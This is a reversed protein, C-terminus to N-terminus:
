PGVPTMTSIVGSLFTAHLSSKWSLSSPLLMRMSSRYATFRPGQAPRATVGTRPRPASPGRLNPLHGRRRLGRAPGESTWQGDAWVAGRRRTELAELSGIARRAMVSGGGFIGRGGESAHEIDIPLSQKRKNFARVLAEPDSNFLERGDRARIHQGSPLLQIKSPAQVEDKEAHLVLEIPEGYEPVRKADHLSLLTLPLQM